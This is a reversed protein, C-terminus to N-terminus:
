YGRKVDVVSLMKEGAVFRRMDERMMIWAREQRLESFSGIHPTIVVNPLTWLPSAKPLPDPDVVDLGAGGLKGSQLAAILDATVVSEGRAINIFIAKPKMRAFMAANFLGTTEATLPTANVVIDAEGIMMPLENPLGVKAVFPPGERSSNRTAIVKMGFANARKAIDTGIGGLGAILITKGDLDTVNHLVKDDWKGDRQNAMAVNLQRTLTLLLAFAHEAVNPGNLRQTNTLLVSGDRVKPNALCDEVGTQQSHIWKLKAGASVVNAQCFGVLADADAVSALAERPNRAPILEVGKVTEKFFTIREPRDALVVIKKPKEWGKMDRVPAASERLGLAAIVAATTEEAAYSPATALFLAIAILVRANM